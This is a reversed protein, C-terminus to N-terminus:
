PLWLINLSMRSDKSSIEKNSAGYENPSQDQDRLTKAHRLYAQHIDEFGCISSQSKSFQGNQLPSTQLAGDSPLCRQEKSVKNKIPVVQTMCENHKYHTTNLNCSVLIKQALKDDKEIIEGVFPTLMDKTFNSEM